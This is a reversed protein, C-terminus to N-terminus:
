FSDKTYKNKCHVICSNDKNKIKCKNFFVCEKEETQLDHPKKQETTPKFQDIMDQYVDIATRDELSDSGKLQEIADICYKIILM